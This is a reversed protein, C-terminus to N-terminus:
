IELFEERSAAMKIPFIDIKGGEEAKNCVPTFEWSKMWDVILVLEPDLYPDFYWFNIM